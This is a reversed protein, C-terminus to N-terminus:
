TASTRLRPALIKEGIVGKFIAFVFLVRNSRLSFARPYLQDPGTRYSRMREEYSNQASTLANYMLNLVIFNLSFFCFCFCFVNKQSVISCCLLRSIEMERVSYLTYYNVAACRSFTQLLNNSKKEYLVTIYPYQFFPSLMAHGSQPRGLCSFSNKM